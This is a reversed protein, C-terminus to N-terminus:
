VRLGAMIVIALLLVSYKAADIDVLCSFPISKGATTTAVNTPVEPGFHRVHPVTPDWKAEIPTLETAFLVLALIGVVTQISTLVILYWKFWLKTGFIRILLISASIRATISALTAPWM